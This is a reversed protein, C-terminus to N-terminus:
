RFRLNDWESRVQDKEDTCYCYVLFFLFACWILTRINTYWGYRINVVISVLYSVCFAVLMFFNKSRWYSNWHVLRILMLLGGGFVTPWLFLSVIPKGFTLSSAELFGVTLLGLKIILELWWIINRSKKEM